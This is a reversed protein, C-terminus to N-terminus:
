ARALQAAAQESFTSSDNGSVPVEDRYFGSSLAEYLRNFRRFGEDYAAFNEPNPQYTRSIRCAQQSADQADRYIGAGIGGIMAAGLCAAEDVDPVIIPQRFVDAMMQCWLPSKTAGGALRIGHLKVGTSLQHDVVVKMEYCVGEMVARAIEAKSTGIRLGAFGGGCNPNSRVGDAGQLYSLYTVGNAGPPVTKIEANVLDYSNIGVVNGTAKELECFTDRFWRYSSAACSTSGEITWTQTPVYPKIMLLGAPDRVRKHSTIFSAGYTGIVMSAEGDEYNGTGFASCCCDMAGVAIPCGVPLGTLAAIHTDIHGVVEGLGALKPLNAETVGLLAMMKPSWRYSDVDFLGTRGCSSADAYFGDVGFRYLAYDMATTIRSLRAWLDPQHKKIWYYKSFSQTMQVAGVERYMEDRPMLAFLEEREAVSRVDQWGIFPRLPANKKDLVMVLSGQASFSVVAIDRPDINSKDIAEKCAEYLMPVIDEALQEVWGAQPYYCPYERYASSAMVGHVDFISAKCGTTGEDIGVLYRAM